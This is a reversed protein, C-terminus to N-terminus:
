FIANGAAVAGRLGVRIGGDAGDSDGIEIGNANPQSNEGGQTKSDQKKGSLEDGNKIPAVVM